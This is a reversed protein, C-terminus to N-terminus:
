GSPGGPLRAEAVGGMQRALWLSWWPLLALPHTTPPPLSASVEWRWHGEASLSLAGEGGGSRGRRLAGTSARSLAPSLATGRQEGCFAPHFGPPEWPLRQADASRQCQRRRLVCRCVEPHRRWLGAGSCVFLLFLLTVPIGEELLWLFLWQARLPGGHRHMAGSLGAGLAAAAVARSAACDAPLCRRSIRHVAHHSCSPVEPSLRRM